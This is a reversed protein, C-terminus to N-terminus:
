LNEWTGGRYNRIIEVVKKEDLNGYIKEGIRIAPSIECAGFCSSYEFSFMGDHTIEGIGTKLEKEIADKIKEYKMVKCCPGNCVQIVYKGKPKDSLASYFTITDYVNSLFIGLRESIYEAQEKTIYHEPSLDQVDALIGVLNHKNMDHKKLIKDIEEYQNVGVLNKSM